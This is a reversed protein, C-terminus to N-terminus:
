RCLYGGDVIMTTGTVWRSSPGLLFVAANAIDEPTGFGLLHSTRYNELAADASGRMIRNHMPTEVAGAALGNVRVARVALECALSRVLGEIAAKAASYATMGVQGSSAAVSSMFLVAGGDALVTRQACARAIGFGAYVSSAFISDIQQQKTLRIPRILEIGAAHFVGDFTGSRSTCDKLWEATADAEQLEFVEAVHGEGPLDVLLAELRVSDRGALTVTAGDNALQRATAMGIGSSAGTVLYRKGSLKNVREDSM